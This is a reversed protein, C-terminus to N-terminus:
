TYVQTRKTDITQIAGWIPRYGFKKNCKQNIEQLINGYLSM